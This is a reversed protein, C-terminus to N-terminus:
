RTLASGAVSNLLASYSPLDINSGCVILGTKKGSLEARLPGEIAALGAAAAPEVALKLDTFMNRMSQVLDADSVTVVKDVVQQIISYSYPKHMPAGLSDAITNVSVVDMAEGQKLSDYMGCAGEPEVGYVKCEPQMAKVACAIGSILGGGGIPVVVADLNDVDECLELGVTATGETTSVGEFPHIMARGEHAQLQEVIDLLETIDRGFVVEAGYDRCRQVRFPNASRPMVVKASVGLIKAAFATAIAHNGASFATVGPALESATLSHMVNLAGRPKFSGTKQLLELKLWLGADGEFALQNGYYPLTPTRLLFPSLTRAVAKIRALSPPHYQM